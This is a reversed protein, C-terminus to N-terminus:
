PNEPRAKPLVCCGELLGWSHPIAKASLFDLPHDHNTLIPERIGRHRVTATVNASALENTLEVFPKLKEDIVREQYAVISKPTEVAAPAPV